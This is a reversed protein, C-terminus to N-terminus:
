DTIKYVRAAAVPEAAILTLGGSHREVQWDPVTGVPPYLQEITRDAVGALELRVSEPAHQQRWAILYTAEGADLGVTTWPQDWSPMGTPFRPISRVLDHRMQKHVAIGAAVLAEQAPSMRDILGAQYIRGALGTCMTFSIMEDTMAAQPYAWNGAQEPLLHVLAGAAIAPYLLPDQQDTTSQLALRSLMAFDSRMAGSACNEIILQPHRDLLRDLWDLLARNHELLGHGVSPADLDTGSGPTVNYDFKFFGVGLESILRDVAADLHATADTSRLDLLYRNRERIRIGNRQLFASDPLTTAARSTIGVVEPEMWLGPIMGRSRIHDLVFRLGRPFRVTSPEWDGVSEWWGSTDDYWGADICFYECGVEAAADILPLLKAETPDGELTDMYDNFIVPLDTNQPHSRRAARRYAALQGFADEFSTGATFTVPVTTFRHDADVTYSWQHLADIPGLLALYAGDDRGETRPPGAAEESGVVPGGTSTEDAEAPVTHPREGVEWQWGGNHEIQWALTRGSERDQVAGAPLFAGSSWSGVSSIRISDRTTAGRAASDTTIMGASRLPRSRWRNEACWSTEAYWVDLNNPQDSIVAGTALSTVAWLTVPESGAQVGVTTTAHVAPIGTYSRFESTVELGSEPAIQTISLSNIKGHQDQRHSVYRLDAGIRTGSHRNCSGWNENGWAPTLIEVLPQRARGSEAAPQDALRIDTLQVPGDTDISFQLTLASTDWELAAM